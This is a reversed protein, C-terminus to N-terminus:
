EKGEAYKKNKSSCHISSHEFMTREKRTINATYDRIRVYLDIRNETIEEEEENM